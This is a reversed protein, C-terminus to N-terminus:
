EDLWERALSAFGALPRAAARRRRALDTRLRSTEAELRGDLRRALERAAQEVLGTIARDAGEWWGAIRKSVEERGLEIRPLEEDFFREARGGRALGRHFASLGFSVNMGFEQGETEAEPLGLLETGPQSIERFVLRVHNTALETLEKSLIEMGVTLREEILGLLYRRDELSFRHSDLLHKRPRVFELVEETAEAAVNRRIGALSTVVHTSADRGLDDALRTASERSLALSEAARRLESNAAQERAVAEDLVTVLRAACGRRKITRAQSYFREELARELTPLGSAELAELDVDDGQKARLAQRASLPVVHEVHSTLEQQGLHSLVKELAEPTLRDAKNLVGLVRMGQDTVSTLAARESEKGPQGSDFLWVVADAREIFQRAVIEHEPVISNFGPTDVLNVRTLNEAPYLIEVQRVEAAVQRSLSKLWGALDEYELEKVTGSRHFVRVKKEPGYKLVNITATTPTIGMPAVPEGVLANIFTSKGANFEGMVTLLLPRDYDERIRAVEVSLESLESRGALLGHVRELVDFLDPEVDSGSTAVLRCARAALGDLEPREPAVAELRELASLADEGNRQLLARETLALWVDPIHPATAALENLTIDSSSLDGRALVSRARVALAQADHPQFRLLTEALEGARELNVQSATELATKLTETHRPEIALAAEFAALAAAHDNVRLALRARLRHPEAAEPDDALAMLAQQNAGISDGQACLAEGLQLHAKGGMELARQFLDVAEDVLDVALAAEGVEILQDSSESQRVLEVAHTAAARATEPEGVEVALLRSLRAHLTPDGTGLSIAKRLERAARDPRSLALHCEALESLVEVALTKEGAGVLHPAAQRLQDAAEDIEHRARLLRALGVRSPAHEDDYALAERFMQEAENGEGVRRLAEASLYLLQPHDDRISLAASAEALAAEADGEDLLREAAEAHVRAEDPLLLVDDLYRSLKAFLGVAWHHFSSPNGLLPFALITDCHITRRHEGPEGRQRRHGDGDEGNDGDQRARRKRCRPWLCQCVAQRCTSLLVHHQWGSAM